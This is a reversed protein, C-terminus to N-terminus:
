IGGVEIGPPIKWDWFGQGGRALIPAHFHKMDKFIWAYRGITYDGLLLEDAGLTEIFAEDILMCDVLNGAALIYGVPLRELLFPYLLNSIIRISDSTMLKMSEKIPKKASHIAVAGRINTNWGRTEIKKHGEAILTAWPQWVTLARM